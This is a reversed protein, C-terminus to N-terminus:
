LFMEGFYTLDLRWRRGTMIIPLWVLLVFVSKFAPDDTLMRPATPSTHGASKANTPGQRLCLDFDSQNATQTLPDIQLKWSKVWETRHRWINRSRSRQWHCKWYKLWVYERDSTAINALFHQKMMVINKKSSTPRWSCLEAQCLNVAIEIINKIWQAARISLGTKERDKNTWQSVSVSFM